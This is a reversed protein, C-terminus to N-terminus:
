KAYAEETTPLTSIHAGTIRELNAKATHFEKLATIYQEKATFLSRQADLVELYPFRGLGYGERSLKFAKGAAPLIKDRITEVKLYASEMEQESQTLAAGLTLAASRNDDETRAVEAHAKAINGRNANFVPIPLSVSAVFAHDNVSPIEVVGFNLRPDPISNAKELALKARSQELAANLKKIDPTQTLTGADGKLVPKSVNYFSNKEMLAPLQGEGLLVALKKRAIERERMATDLTIDATSLEVEARSKQILPSAAANVRKSVSQLVDKALEKQERALRVDEEAAVVDNFAVSVDRVVDLAAAQYDLNAIEVGKGAIDERASVKGGIEILQSVGYSNQRPSIDTYAQGGGFNERSYSIEPNPLAGAQRQEGQASLVAKGFAQLRPSQALAKAIADNETFGPAQAYVPQGTLLIVSLLWVGRHRYM